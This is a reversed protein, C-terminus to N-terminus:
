SPGKLTSHSSLPISRSNPARSAAAKTLRISKEGLWRAKSEAKSLSCAHAHNDFLGLQKEIWSTLGQPEKRLPRIGQTGISKRPYRDLMTRLCRYSRQVDVVRFRPAILAISQSAPRSKREWGIAPIEHDTALPANPDEGRHIPTPPRQDIPDIRM